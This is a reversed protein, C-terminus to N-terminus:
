EIRDALRDSCLLALAYPYPCLSKGRLLFLFAPRRAACTSKSRSTLLISFDTALRAACIYRAAVWQRWTHSSLQKRPQQTWFGNEARQTNFASNAHGRDLEDPGPNTEAASLKVPNDDQAPGPTDARYTCDYYVAREIDGLPVLGENVTQNLGGYGTSYAALITIKHPVDGLGATLLDKVQNKGIGRSQDILGSIGFNWRPEESGPINILVRDDVQEFYHRLGLDDLDQQVGFLLSVKLEPLNGGANRADDVRKKVKSGAFFDYRFEKNQFAAPISQKQRQQHRVSPDLLNKLYQKSNVCRGSTEKYRNRFLNSNPVNSGREDEYYANDNLSRPM